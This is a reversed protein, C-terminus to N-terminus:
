LFTKETGQPFIRARLACNTLFTWWAGKSALVRVASLAVFTFSSEEGVVRSKGHAIM